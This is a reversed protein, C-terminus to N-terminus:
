KKQKKAAATSSASSSAGGRKKKGAAAAAAAVKHADYALKMKGMNAKSAVAHDVIPAPYDVGIVCGCSKQLAAPARWPEYIYAKPLKRLQPLYKRVYAGDPDYKKAFAIPSYCRFYQYFFCSCSLWMWNGNNLSWDADLLLEDFVAAGDEWHQWLDGRTLFCAVAHRALHHIWGETRLQTMAADIWPFGTRGERWAALKEADRGWPIQRCIRNGEMAGYRAGVGHGCLYYFDRWLLQGVLSVPPQTPRSGGKVHAAEIAKLEHWFLRPSLCGFKLYPSLVTTSPELVATPATKPKEFAAVWAKRQTVHSKLRALAATEGGPFLVKHGGGGGGGGGAAGEEELELYGMERLTPVDYSCDALLAAAAGPSALAGPLAGDLAADFPPLRRAAEAAGGPLPLPPADAAAALKLFTSYTTPPLAGDDKLNARHRRLLAAPEWLTHGHVACVEIAVAPAAAAAAAGGGGGGGGGGSGGDGDDGGGGLLRLVAADRVVAYPETDVEYTLRGAGWAAVLRPLVALPDGRAVFLRSGAARLQGDLDRLAQLLFHYRLVGVKAPNAFRPDIIFLPFVAEAGECARLLAANDHLRLGKRFWHISRM